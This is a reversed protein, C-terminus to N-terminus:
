WNVPGDENFFQGSPGDNSLTALQVVIAAGQEVTRFGQHQNLDTATYGPDAANVKIDTEKLERAFLVTLANLATKSAAYAPNIPSGIIPDSHWALSGLSTSVNVIRGSSSKRILPLLTKTVSFVGFFNTEFTERLVSIELESPAEDPYIFIGANNILVDLKGDYEEILNAAAQISELNTVDLRVFRADIGEEILKRVAEDGRGSDRAGVLVTFGRKGLQRATEFGIGKNAGTILAIKKSQNEM